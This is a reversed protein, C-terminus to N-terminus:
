RTQFSAISSKNRTETICATIFALSTKKEQHTAALLCMLHCRCRQGVPSMLIVTPSVWSLTVAIASRVLARKNTLTNYANGASLSHENMCIRRVNWGLFGFFGLRGTDQAAGAISQATARRCGPAQQKAIIGQALNGKTYGAMQRYAM